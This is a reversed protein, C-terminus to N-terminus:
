MKADGAGIRQAASVCDDCDVRPCRTLPRTAATRLGLRLQLLTPQVEQVFRREGGVQGAVIAQM